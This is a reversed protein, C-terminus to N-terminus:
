SALERRRKRAALVDRVHCARCVRAGQKTRRTNRENFPHGYKCHTQRAFRATLSESRANNEAQTVAELHDPCFCLRVRCLHDVQFGSPIPGLFLEHAVRHVYRKRGLVSIGGYGPGSQKGTWLWCGDASMEFRSFLRVVLESRYDEHLEHVNV